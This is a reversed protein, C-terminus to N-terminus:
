LILDGKRVSSIACPINIVPPIHKFVRFVLVVFHFDSPLCKLASMGSVSKKLTFREQTEKTKGHQEKIQGKFPPRFFMSLYASFLHFFSLHLKSVTFHTEKQGVRWYGWCYYPPATPIHQPPLKAALRQELCYMEAHCLTCAKDEKGDPRTINSM